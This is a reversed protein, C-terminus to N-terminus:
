NENEPKSWSEAYESLVAIKVKSNKYANFALFIIAAVFVISFLIKLIEFIQGAYPVASLISLLFFGLIWGTWLFMSLLATYRVFRNKLEAFIFPLGFLAALLSSINQNLKLSSSEINVKEFEILKTKLSM